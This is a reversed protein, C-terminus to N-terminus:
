IVPIFCRSRVAASCSTPFLSEDTDVATVIRPRREAGALLKEVALLTKVTRGKDRTNIVVTSCRPITCCVLGAASTTDAMIVIM